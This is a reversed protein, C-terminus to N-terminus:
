KAGGCISDRRMAILAHWIKNSRGKQYSRAALRGANRRVLLKWACTLRRDRQKPTGPQNMWAVLGSTGMSWFSVAGSFSSM